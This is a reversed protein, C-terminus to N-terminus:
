CTPSANPRATAHIMGGVSALTGPLNAHSFLLPGVVPIAEARSRLEELEAASATGKEKAKAYLRVLLDLDELAEEPSTDNDPDALNAALVMAGSLEDTAYDGGVDIQPIVRNAIVEPYPLEGQGLLGQQRLADNRTCQYFLDSM